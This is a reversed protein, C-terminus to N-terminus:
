RTISLEAPAGTLTRKPSCTIIMIALTLIYPAANFLHYGSTVGVSQLAPGLAAAGGFALSAWLCLMPDWRAFIVLAVATIGQGSSLGENWSGPYFLRCSRVASGPSSAASWPPACGSGCVSYGMARAADSSEGATRILLGWRTTRFAWFLIPAIAVGILFLVNIRLAARVQPIDSWWGFDIAPLRAATPEILPKGLYFALGTGFLMLAIGVAIDNVRPLSCIGAHLAGLLAGTIGAALVGLWPSGSLYSIGYASMAGMVLTGELGLNIRGSRETICEGLSVFLFPTSVRIAGGFVALPVTWLGISGDAMDPNGKLFGIRGYLADSALVFVFIIGQLVLVSADPLGLRRQLLGGSASIGGLLIAVPIIALPNQRALFAVLIGTFGYGAALNANTRGQVAAVEIMGALGAAGGALFCITLILKNVGLGVIKAARINGGAVRSAFGFVTHYILIYSAFAAILGFVLGWHVDTGPISGIMNAAGIERTSPKNLSSPDRM